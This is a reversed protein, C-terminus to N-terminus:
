ELGELVKSVTVIDYGQELIKPILEKMVEYTNYARFHALIIAGNKLNKLVHSVQHATKAGKYTDQISITWFIAKFGNRALINLTRKDYSGYPPRLYPYMKGTVKTINRQAKRINRELEDDTLLTITDHNLTHNCVEFGMNDMKRIWHPRGDGIGRGGIIFVTCRIGYSQFLDLLENHEFWGDDLTIAVRKLEPNGRDYTKPPLPKFMESDTAGAPIHRAMCDAVISEISFHHKNEGRLLAVSEQKLIRDKYSIHVSYIGPKIARLDYTGDARVIAKRYSVTIIGGKLPTEVGAVTVTGTMRATNINFIPTFNTYKGTWNEPNIQYWSFLLVCIFIGIASLIVVTLM